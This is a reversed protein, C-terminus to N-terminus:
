YHLHVEGASQRLSIVPLLFIEVTPAVTLLLLLFRSANINRGWVVWFCTKAKLKLEVKVRVEPAIGNHLLQM